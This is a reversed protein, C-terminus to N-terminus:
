QKKSSPYYPNHTDYFLPVKERLIHNIEVQKPNNPDHLCSYLESREFSLLPSLKFTTFLKERVDPVENFLKINLFIKFIMMINLYPFPKMKLLQSFLSLKTNQPSWLLMHALFKALVMQRQLVSVEKLLNISIMDILYRFKLQESQIVILILSSMRNCEVVNLNSGISSKFWENVPVMTFSAVPIFKFARVLLQYCHRNDVFKISNVLNYKLTSEVYSKLTSQFCSMLVIHGLNHSLFFEMIQQYISWPPQFNKLIMTLIGNIQQENKLNIEKLSSVFEKLRVFYNEKSWQSLDIQTM